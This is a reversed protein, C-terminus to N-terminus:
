GNDDNIIGKNYMFTHVHNFFTNKIYFFILTLFLLFM